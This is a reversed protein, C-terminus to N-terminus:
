FFALNLSKGIKRPGFFHVNKEDTNLYKNYSSILGINPIYEEGDVDIFRQQAKGFSLKKTDIFTLFNIIPKYVQHYEAPISDLDFAGENLFSNFIKNNIGKDTKTLDFLAHLHNSVQQAIENKSLIAITKSEKTFYLSSQYFLRLYNLRPSGSRLSYFYPNQFLFPPKYDKSPLNSLKQHFIKNKTISIVQFPSNIHQISRTIRKSLM